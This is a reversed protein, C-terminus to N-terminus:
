VNRGEAIVEGEGGWGNLSLSVKKGIVPPGPIGVPNIVAERLLGHLFFYGPLGGVKM